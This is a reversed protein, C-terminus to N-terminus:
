YYCSMDAPVCQQTTGVKLKVTMCTYGGPCANTSCDRGCFTEHANTVICKANPEACEPSLPNCYDCLKGQSKPCEQGKTGPPLICDPRECCSPNFFYHYCACVTNPVKGGAMNEDCDLMTKGNVITTKWTGTAVDCEVQGWGCYVLGDCWMREGVVCKSGPTPTPGPPEPPQDTKTCKTGNFESGKVCSYWGGGPPYDGAGEEKECKYIDKGFETKVKVCTWDGGGPPTGGETTEGYCVWTVVGNKVVQHCKWNGGGEPLGGNEDQKECVTGDPNCKWVGGGTPPTTTGAKECVLKGNEQDVKCTWVSTGDPNNSPNPVPSRTCEWKFEQENYTCNWESGGTPPNDKTGKKECTYKFESWTCEWDTGGDPTPLDQECKNPNKSCDWLDSCTCIIGKDPDGYCQMKEKPCCKQPDTCPAYPDTSSSTCVGGVCTEGSACDGSGTCPEGPLEGQCGVFGLVLAVMMLRWLSKWSM